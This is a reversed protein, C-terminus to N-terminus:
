AIQIHKSWNIHKLIAIQLSPPCLFQVKKYAIASNLVFFHLENEMHISLHEIFCWHLGDLNDECITIAESKLSTGSQKKFEQHVAKSTFWANNVLILQHLYPLGTKISFYSYCVYLQHSPPCMLAFCLVPFGRVHSLTSNVTVTIVFSM